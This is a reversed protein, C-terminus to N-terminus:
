RTSVNCSLWHNHESSSLAPPHRTRLANESKSDAIRKKAILPQPGQARSRFLPQRSKRLTASACSAPTPQSQSPVRGARRAPERNIPVVRNGTAFGVEGRSHGPAWPVRPSLLDLVERLSPPPERLTYHEQHIPAAHQTSGRM